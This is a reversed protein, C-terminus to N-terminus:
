LLSSPIPFKAIKKFQSFDLRWLIKKIVDWGNPTCVSCSVDAVNMKEINSM